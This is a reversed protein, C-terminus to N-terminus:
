LEFEGGDDNSWDDDNETCNNETILENEKEPLLVEEACDEEFLISTDKQSAHSTKKMARCYKENNADINPIAMKIIPLVRIPLDKIEEGYLAYKAIAEYAALRNSKSLTEIAEYYSRYFVFSRKEKIMEVSPKNSDKTKM